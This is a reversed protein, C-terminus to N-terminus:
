RVKDSLMLRTKVVDLPTTIAAASGGAISGCIAAEWPEVKKRNTYSATTAKLYEYLPFQLCTFPIQDVYKTLFLFISYLIIYNVHNKM